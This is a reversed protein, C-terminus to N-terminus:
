ESEESYWDALTWHKLDFKSLCSDFSLATGEQQTYADYLINGSDTIRLKKIIIERKNHKNELKVLQGLGVFREIDNKLEESM